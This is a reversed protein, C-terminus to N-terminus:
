QANEANREAEDASGVLTAEPGPINIPRDEWGGGVDIPSDECIGMLDSLKPLHKDFFGEDRLRGVEAAIDMLLGVRKGVVSEM